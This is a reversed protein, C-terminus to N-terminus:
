ARGIFEEIKHLTKQQSDQCYVTDTESQGWFSDQYIEESTRGSELTTM